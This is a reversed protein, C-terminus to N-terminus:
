NEAVFAEYEPSTNINQWGRRAPDGREISGGPLEAVDLRTLLGGVRFQGAGVLQAATVGAHAPYYGPFPAFHQGERALVASSPALEALCVLEAVLAASLGPADCTAAVGGACGLEALMALGSALGALPGSDPVADIAIALRLDAALRAAGTNPSAVSVVIHQTPIASGLARALHAIFPSGNWLLGAKEAGM